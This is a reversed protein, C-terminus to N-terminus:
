LNLPSNLIMSIITSYIIIPLQYIIDFEGRSEYIKHMTEDNYFLWNIAYEIAFGIFFLDLKIIGSNYHNNNFFACILNHQTKLLSAYYQCYTRKDYQIAINYSFGNIEEDNYNKSIEKRVVKKKNKSYIKIKSENM